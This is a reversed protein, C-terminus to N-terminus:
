GKVWDRLAPNRRLEEIEEPTPRLPRDREGEVLCLFGLHTEPAAYFQHWTRPPIYLVDYKSVPEIRNGMLVHGSGRLIVVAHVHDHRELASYGAPDAEFYRLESSLYANSDFLVQKTMGRSRTGTAPYDKLPLEPWRYGGAEESFRHIKPEFDEGSVAVL